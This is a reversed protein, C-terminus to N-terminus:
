PVLTLGSIGDFHRRNLTALPVDAAVCCAAIWADNSAIPSGVAERDAVLRGWEWSVM